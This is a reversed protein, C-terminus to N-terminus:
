QCSGRLFMAIPDQAPCRTGSNTFAHRINHNLILCIIRQKTSHRSLQVDGSPYKRSRPNVLCTVSRPVLSQRTHHSFEVDSPRSTNSLHGCRRQLVLHSNEKVRGGLIGRMEPVLVKSFMVNGKGDILCIWGGSQLRCRDSPLWWFVIM